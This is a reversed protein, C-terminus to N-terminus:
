NHVPRYVKSKSHNEKYMKYNRLQEDVNMHNLNNTLHMGKIPETGNVSVNDLPLVVDYHGTHQQNYGLCITMNSSAATSPQLFQLPRVKNSTFILINIGFINCITHPVLDGFQSNYHTNHLFKHIEKNFLSIRKEETKEQTTSFYPIYVSQNKEWENVCLQRLMHNLQILQSSLCNNCFFTQDFTYDQSFHQNFLRVFHEKIREQSKGLRVIWFAVAYFLCNGDDTRFNLYNLPHLEFGFFRCNKLLRINSSDSRPKVVGSTTNNVRRSLM